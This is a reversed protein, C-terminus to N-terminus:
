LLCSVFLCNRESDSMELCGTYSDSDSSMELELIELRTSPNMEAIKLEKDSDTDKGLKKQVQEVSQLMNGICYTIGSAIIGVCLFGLTAYLPFKIIPQNFFESYTLMSYSPTFSLLVVTVICFSFVMSSIQMITCNVSKAKNIKQKQHLTSFVDENSYQNTGEGKRSLEEAIKSNLHVKLFDKFINKEKVFAIIRHADGIYKNNKFYTSCARLFDSTLNNNNIYDFISEASQMKRNTVSYLLLNIYHHTHVARTNQLEESISKNKDIATKLAELYRKERDNSAECILVKSCM